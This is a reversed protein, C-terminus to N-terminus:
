LFVAGWTPLLSLIEAAGFCPHCFPGHLHPQRGLPPPPPPVGGEATHNEAHITPRDGVLPLPGLVLGGPPVSPHSSPVWPLLAAPSPSTTVDTELCACSGGSSSFSSQEMCPRPCLQFSHPETLPLGWSSVPTGRGFVPPSRLVPSPQPPCTGTGPLTAPDTPEGVPYSNSLWPERM